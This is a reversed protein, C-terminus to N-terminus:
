TSMEINDWDSNKNILWELAKRREYVLGENIKAQQGKIREDVCYWHLRYYLDLMEYMEDDTKLTSLQTIKENDDNKELNPLMSAMEDSCWQTEDLHSILGTAWMLAWLGELYWRLSNIEYETLEDNDKLLIEHEWNSLHQTLGNQDIWKRIITVPAEFSINILANMVGMRGKIEEITRTNPDELIPLWSNFRYQRSEILQNNRERTKIKQEETM